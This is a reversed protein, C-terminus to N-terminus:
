DQHNKTPAHDTEKITAWIIDAQNALSRRSGDNWIVFDARDMKKQLPWQARIRASTQAETLGKAALRSRQTTESCGVVVCCDFATQADVEYLLPINVVAVEARGERALTQLAETWLRRVCPHVIGNLKQRQQDDNFVIDGLATRNITQDPNLIQTGFANIIEHYSVTAPALTRHALEDSDIVAAGRQRWLDAVASKGTAIGGTLGINIPRHMDPIMQQTATLEKPHCRFAKSFREQSSLRRRGAIQKVGRVMSVPCTHTLHLPQGLEPFLAVAIGTPSDGVGLDARNGARKHQFQVVM